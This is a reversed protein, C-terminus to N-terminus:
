EVEIQTLDTVSANEDDARIGDVFVRGSRILRRAVGFPISQQAAIVQFLVLTAQTQEESM